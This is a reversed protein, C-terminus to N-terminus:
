RLANHRSLKAYRDENRSITVENGFCCFPHGSFKREGAM